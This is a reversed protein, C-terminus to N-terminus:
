GEHQHQLVTTCKKGKSYYSLASIPPENTRLPKNQVPQYVALPQDVQIMCSVIRPAGVLRGNNFLCALVPRRTSSTIAIGIILRNKSVCSISSTSYNGLLVPDSQQKYYDAAAAAFSYYETQNL